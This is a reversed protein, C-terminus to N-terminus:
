QAAAGGIQIYKGKEPLRYLEVYFDWKESDKRVRNIVPLYWTGQEAVSKLPTTAEKAPINKIARAMEDCLYEFWNVDEPSGPWDAAVEKWRNFLDNFQLDPQMDAIGFHPLAGPSAAAVRGNAEILEYAKERAVKENKQKKIEQVFEQDLALQLYHWRRVEEHKEDPILERLSQYLQDGRSRVIDDSLVEASAFARNLGPFFKEDRHFAFAFKRIDPQTIRIRHKEKYPAPADDLCQFVVVRTDFSKPNTAVGCEWLCYSWDADPITYLLLVVNAKDLAKQLAETISEGVLYSSGEDSSQFVQAQGATWNKVTKKLVEAMKKDKHRHSIFVSLKGEAQLEGNMEQVGKM